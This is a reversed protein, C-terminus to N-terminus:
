CNSTHGEYKSRSSVTEVVIKDFKNMKLDKLMQQLAPRNNMAAGSIGNDIYTSTMEYDHLTCYKEIEALQAPISYNGIQKLSSIRAYAAIKIKNTVTNM